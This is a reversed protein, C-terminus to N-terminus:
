SLSRADHKGASWVPVQAVVETADMLGLDKGTEIPVPLLYLPKVQM